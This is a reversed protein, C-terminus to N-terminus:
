GIGKPSDGLMGEVGKLEEQCKKLLEEALGHLRLVEGLPLSERELKQLIDQLQAINDDFLM